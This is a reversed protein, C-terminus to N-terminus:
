PPAAGGRPARTVRGGPGAPGCGRRSAPATSQRLRRADRRRRGPRRKRLARLSPAWTTSPVDPVEPAGRDHDPGGSTPRSTRATAARAPRDGDERTHTGPGARSSSGTRRQARRRGRRSPRRAAGGSAVWAKTVGVQQVPVPSGDRASTTTAPSWQGWAHCAARDVRRRGHVVVVARGLQGEDAHPLARRRGGVRGRTSTWTRSSSIQTREGYRQWPYSAGARGAAGPRTVAEGGDAVAALEAVAPEDTRPRGSATVVAPGRHRDGVDLRGQTGRAGRASRSRHGVGWRPATSATTSVSGAVEPGVRRCRRPCAQLSRVPRAQPEVDRLEWQGARALHVPQAPWSTEASSPRAPQDLTRREHVLGDDDGRRACGDARRTARQRRCRRGVERCRHQGRGPAGRDVARRHALHHEAVAGSGAAVDGPHRGERGAQGVVYGGQGDVALAAGPQGRRPRRPGPGPWRAATSAPPTSDADVAGQRNQGRRRRGASRARVKAGAASPSGSM